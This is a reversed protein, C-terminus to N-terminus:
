KVPTFIPVAVLVEYDNGTLTEVKRVYEYRSIPNKAQETAQQLAAGQTKGYVRYIKVEKVNKIINIPMTGVIGKFGEDKILEKFKEFSIVNNDIQKETKVIDEIQDKQPQSFASSSMLSALITANIAGKKAHSKVKDIVNQFNIAEKLSLIDDVIQQEKDNLEKDTTVNLNFFTEESIKDQLFLEVPNYNNFSKLHKM